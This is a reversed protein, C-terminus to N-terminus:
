KIEEPSEKVYNNEVYSGVAYKFNKRKHHHGRPVIAVNGISWPRSIDIRIMSYAGRKSGIHKMKRSYLWVERFDEWTMDYAEGRFKAQAKQRLWRLRLLAESTPIARKPM